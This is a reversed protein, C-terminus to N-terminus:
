ESEAQRIKNWCVGCFYKFRVSRAHNGMNDLTIEIADLIEHNPMRKVFTKMSTLYSRDVSGDDYCIGLAEVFTWAQDQIRDRKDQMIQAFAAIQAEREEIEAARDKLSQPM